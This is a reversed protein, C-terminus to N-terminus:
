AASQGHSMEEESHEAPGQKRRCLRIVEDELARWAEQRAEDNIAFKFKGANTEANNVREFNMISPQKDFGKEIVQKHTLRYSHGTPLYLMYADKVAVTDTVIHKLKADWKRKLQTVPGDVKRLVYTLRAGQMVTSVAM